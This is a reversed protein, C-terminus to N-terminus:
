KEVAIGAGALATTIKELQSKNAHLEAKLATIEENQTEIISQQEQIARVLSPVFQGYAISYHDTPNQPANVGDFAYGIARAAAEVEQAVFGTHTRTKDKAMQEQSPQYRQAISDPMQATVHRQLKGTNIWYTVPRLQSIFALGPVEERINEKFRGDSLNSWNAYGGIVMSGNNDGIVVRNSNNVIANYGIATANPFNLTGVNAGNGIATNNSGTTNSTLANLGAATNGNGSTNSALSLRGVATNSGGSTNGSLAVSGIATNYDGTNSLLTNYGNATNYNGANSYLADFGTATNYSGTNSNLSKWGIATNGGGANTYLSQYGNATNSNGTSNSYLAERGTATNEYGTTNQYMAYAGHATNSSGNNSNLVAIGTATNYSGTSNLNLTAFGFATNQSGATNQELALAGAATNASGTNNSLLANLGFATNYDASINASLANVGAATNGDGDTNAALAYTGIATNNEGANNVYLAYLGNATNRAGTTNANLARYGTATNFFGTTNVPFSEFGFSTNGKALDFDLHGARTNNVKFLLPQTNTTGLFNGVAVNSGSLSWAATGSAPLNTWGGSAKYWFTGTDTDFVLLGLAPSAIATRQASTMRPVLMGKDTASVDLQASADAAAGSSNVSLSQNINSQSFLSTALFVLLLPLFTTTKM